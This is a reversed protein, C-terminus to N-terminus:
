KQFNGMGDKRILMEAIFKLYQRVKENIIREIRTSGVKGRLFRIQGAAKVSFDERRMTWMEAGSVNIHAHILKCIFENVKRQSDGNGRHVYLYHYHNRANKTKQVTHISHTHVPGTLTDTM